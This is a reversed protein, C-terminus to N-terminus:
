ESHWCWQRCPYCEWVMHPTCCLSPSVTHTNLNTIPPLQFFTSVERGPSILASEASALTESSIVWWHESMNPWQSTCSFSNPFRATQILSDHWLQETNQPINQPFVRYLSSFSWQSKRIPLNGLAQRGGLTLAANLGPRLVGPCEWFACEAHPHAVAFLAFQEHVPQTAESRATYPGSTTFQNGYRTKWRGM